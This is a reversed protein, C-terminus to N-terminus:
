ILKIKNIEEDWMMDRNGRIFTRIEYGLIADSTKANTKFGCCGLKISNDILLNLNRSYSFCHLCLYYIEGTKITM